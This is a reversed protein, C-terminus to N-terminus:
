KFEGVNGPTENNYVESQRYSDGGIYVTAITIIGTISATLVGSVDLEQNNNMLYLCVISFSGLFSCTYVAIKLRSKQTKNFYKM